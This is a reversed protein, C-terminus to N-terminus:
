YYKSKYDEVISIIFSRNTPKLKNELSYGLSTYFEENHNKNWTVGIAHRISREVCSVTTDHEKAVLPYLVKTISSIVEYDKITLAIATKLYNYGKLNIPIGAQKLINTLYGELSEETNTEIYETQINNYSSEKLTNLTNMKSEYIEIVRKSLLVIDFPKLMFYSAGLKLARHVFDENSIATLMIVSIKQKVKNSQIEELVSIGDRKPLIADLLLVDIENNLVLELAKEGDNATGIVQILENKHLYDSIIKCLDINDEVIAVKIKKTIIITVGM